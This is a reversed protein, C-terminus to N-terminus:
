LVSTFNELFFNGYKFFGLLGLNLGLSGILLLNKTKLRESNFIGEGIKWDAITSIWLLIVFPPNWAAYFLYSAVLLSLKRWKWINLLYYVCLVIGFFIIFTYSNFIM